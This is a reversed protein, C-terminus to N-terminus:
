LHLHHGGPFHFPDQVGNCGGEDGVVVSRMEANEYWKHLEGQVNPAATVGFNQLMYFLVTSHTVVVIEREPRRM